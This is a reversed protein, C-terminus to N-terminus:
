ALDLFSVHFIGQPWPTASGNTYRNISEPLCCNQCAGHHCGVYEVVTKTAPCYGDVYYTRDNMQFRRQKVHKFGFQLQPYETHALYSLYEAEEQSGRNCVASVMDLKIVPLTQSDPLM